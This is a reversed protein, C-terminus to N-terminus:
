IWVVLLYSVLYCVEVLLDVEEWQLWLVFALIVLAVVGHGLFSHLFCHLVVFGLFSFSSSTKFHFFNDINLWLRDFFLCNFLININNL